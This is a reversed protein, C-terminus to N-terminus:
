VGTPFGFIADEFQRELRRKARSPLFSAQVGALTVGRLSEMSLGMNEVALQYNRTLSGGVSRPAWSALSVQMGAQIMQLTPDASAGDWAGIALEAALCMLLAPRDRRIWALADLSHLLRSGFAIRAPTLRALREAAHEVPLDEALQAMMPLGSDRGQELLEDAQSPDGAALHVSLGLVGMDLHEVAWAVTRELGDLPGGAPTHILWGLSLADQNPPSQLTAELLDLAAELSGLAEAVARPSVAVELHAVHDDQATEIADELAKELGDTSALQAEAQDLQGEIAALSLPSGPHSVEPLAADGLRRYLDVKPLELLDDLISPPGAPM